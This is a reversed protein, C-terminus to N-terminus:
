LLAHLLLNRVPGLIQGLTGTFLLAMLIIMGYPELRAFKLAQARPLIGALVRGGDLPLIPVMNLVALVVNIQVSALAMEALGGVHAHWGGAARFVLASAVALVVNTAPGALAVKVMDRKPNRLNAFSVPVPRAWGFVFPSGAAVLLLPLVVTGVPDVHPIPNLTLRGARAATPDGLRNAVWGHAVEHLIVAALVPVAWISIQQLVEPM